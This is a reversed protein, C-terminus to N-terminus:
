QGAKQDQLFARTFAALDDFVQVGEIPEDVLSQETAAGNGTRVLVPRCGAAVAAELDMRNDGLMWSGELSDLGLADQIQRFLGTGPKRCNCHADPHHPCYAIHAVQGGLEALLDTMRRHIAALTQHSYFGRAIGSQNTAIALTHGARCLDAMAQLSGPLPVWEDPHCVYDGPRYHNIVGDRDLLVLM